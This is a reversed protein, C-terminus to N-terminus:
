RELITSIGRLLRYVIPIGQKDVALGMQAIPSPRHERSYGKKRPLYIKIFKIKLWFARFM